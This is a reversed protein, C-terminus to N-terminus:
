DHYNGWFCHLLEHGLSNMRVNDYLDAPREAYITCGMGNTIACARKQTQVKVNATVPGQQAGQLADLPSSGGCKQQIEFFGSPVWTVVVTKFNTEQRLATTTCGALAAAMAVCLLHKYRRM